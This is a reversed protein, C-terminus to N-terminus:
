NKCSAAVSCFTFFISPTQINESYVTLLLLYIHSKGFHCVIGKIVFWKCQFQVLIGQPPYMVPVESYRFPQQNHLVESCLMSIRTQQSRPPVSNWYLGNNATGLWVFCYYGSCVCLRSAVSGWSWAEASLRSFRHKWSNRLKLCQQGGPM